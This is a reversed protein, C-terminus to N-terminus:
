IRYGRFWQGTIRAGFAVGGVVYRSFMRRPEVRLRYAWELRRRRMWIPARPVTGALFDFWAGVTISVVDLDRTNHAIWREQHPHGMGVLLLTAGTERLRTRM